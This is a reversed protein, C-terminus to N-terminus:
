TSTDLVLVFILSFLKYMSYMGLLARYWASLSVSLRVVTTSVCCYVGIRCYVGVYLSTIIIVASVCNSFKNVVVIKGM